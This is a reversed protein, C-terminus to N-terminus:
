AFGDGSRPQNDRVHWGSVLQLLLGACDLVASFGEADAAVPLGDIGYVLNREGGFALEVTRPRGIAGPLPLFPEILAWEEETM